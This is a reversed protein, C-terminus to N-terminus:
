IVANKYMITTTRAGSEGGAFGYCLRPKGGVVQIAMGEAERYTLSEGSTIHRQEVIEGTNMDVTTLHANGSTKPAGPFGQEQCWKVFAPSPSPPLKKNFDARDCNNYANGDLMYLYQGYATYGQFIGTYKETAWTNDTLSNRVQGTYNLAPQTFTALPTYKRALVDSLAYVYYRMAGNVKGRQILRNHIPDIACTVNAAGQVLLHKEIGASQPTLTAGDVFKIRALQLGVADGEDVTLADVEVWLRVYTATAEAAISVGHGWGLGGGETLNMAGLVKGTLDTKTIRLRGNESSKSGALVQALYIHGRVNDFAFSQLVTNPYIDDNWLLTSVDGALSIRESAPVAAFATGSGLVPTAAAALAAGGGLRLLSRRSLARENLSIRRNNM